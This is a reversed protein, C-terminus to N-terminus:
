YVHIVPKYLIYFYARGPMLDTKYAVIVNIYGIEINIM